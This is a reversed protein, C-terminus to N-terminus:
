KKLEKEYYRKEYEKKYIQYMESKPCVWATVINNFITIFPIKELKSGCEDCSNGRKM